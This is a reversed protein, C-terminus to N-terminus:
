KYLFTYFGHLPFASCLTSVLPNSNSDWSQQTIKPLNELRESDRIKEKNEEWQTEIERPIIILERGGYYTHTSRQMSSFFLDSLFTM